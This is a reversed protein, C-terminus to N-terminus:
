AKFCDFLASMIENSRPKAMQRTRINRSGAVAPNLAMQNAIGSVSNNVNNKTSLNSSLFPLPFAKYLVASTVVPPKDTIVATKSPMGTHNPTISYITSTISPMTSTIVAVNSPKVAKNSPISYISSM